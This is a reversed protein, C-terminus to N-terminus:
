SRRQAWATMWGRRDRKGGFPLRPAPSRLPDRAAGERVTARCWGQEGRLRGRGHAGWGSRQQDDCGITGGCLAEVVDRMSLSVDCVDVCANQWPRRSEKAPSDTLQVRTAHWTKCRRCHRQVSGTPQRSGEGKSANRALFWSAASDAGSGGAVLSATHLWSDYCLQLCGLCARLVQHRPQLFFVNQSTRPM